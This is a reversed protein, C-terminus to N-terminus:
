FITANESQVSDFGPKTGASIEGRHVGPRMRRSSLGSTVSDKNLFRIQQASKNLKRPYSM